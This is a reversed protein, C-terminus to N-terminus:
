APCGHAGARGHCFLAIEIKECAGERSHHVRPEGGALQIRPWDLANDGEFLAAPTFLAAFKDSEQLNMRNFGNLAIACSAALKHDLLEFM